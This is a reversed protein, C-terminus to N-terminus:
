CSRSSRPVSVPSTPPPALRRRARRRRAGGGRRLVDGHDDDIGAAGAQLAGYYAVAGIGSAVGALAAIGIATPDNGLVTTGPPSRVTRRRRDRGTLSVIMAAEPASRTAVDALV